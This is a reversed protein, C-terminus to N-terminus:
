GEGTKTKKGRETWGTWQGGAIRMRRRTVGSEVSREIEILGRDQLTHLFALVERQPYGTQAMLEERTPCPGGIRQSLLLLVNITARDPDVPRKTNSVQTGGGM